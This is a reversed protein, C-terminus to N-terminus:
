RRCEARLADGRDRGRRRRDGAVDRRVPDQFEDSQVVPELHHRRCASRSREHGRRRREHRGPRHRHHDACQREAHHQQPQLRRGEPARHRRRQPERQRVADHQGARDLTINGAVGTCTPATLGLSRATRDPRPEVNTTPPLPIPRRRRRTSSDVAAAPHPGRDGAGSRDASLAIIAGNKCKGVGVRPTSLTGYVQDRQRQGDPQRQDRCQRGDAGDRARREVMTM